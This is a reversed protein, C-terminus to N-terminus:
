LTLIFAASNVRAIIGMPRNKLKDRMQPFRVYRYRETANIWINFAVVGTATNIVPHNKPTEEGFKLVRKLTEKMTMPTIRAEKPSIM